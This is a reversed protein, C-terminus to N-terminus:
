IWGQFGSGHELSPNFAAELGKAVGPPPLEQGKLTRCVPAWASGERSTFQLCGDAKSKAKLSFMNKRCSLLFYDLVALLM